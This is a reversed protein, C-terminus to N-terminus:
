FLRFSCALCPVQGIEQMSHQDKWDDSCFTSQSSATMGMVFAIRKLSRSALAATFPRRRTSRRCRDDNAGWNPRGHSSVGIPVQGNVPRGRWEPTRKRYKGSSCAPVYNTRPLYDETIVTLDIPSYDKNRSCGENPTKNFPQGRLLAPRVGGVENVDKPFRTERAITGDQQQNTEHFHEAAFYLAWTPWSAQTATVFRQLVDLIERSHVVPLRAELASTGPRDYLQAFLALATVDM